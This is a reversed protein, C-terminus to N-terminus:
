KKYYGKCTHARPNRFIWELEQMTIKKRVLQSRGNAPHDITTAVTMREPRSYYINIRNNEKLFSIMKIGEQHTLEAWQCKRAVRKIQQVQTM